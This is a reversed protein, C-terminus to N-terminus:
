PVGGNFQELFGDGIVLPCLNTLGGTLREIVNDARRQTLRLDFAKHNGLSLVVTHRIDVIANDTYRNGCGCLSQTVRIRSQDRINHGRLRIIHERLYADNLDLGSKRHIKLFPNCKQPKTTFHIWYLLM